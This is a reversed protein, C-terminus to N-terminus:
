EGILVHSHLGARYGSPSVGMIKKFARSFYYADEYGLNLAVQKISWRHTDLLNYAYQMKLDIFYHIPSQGSM